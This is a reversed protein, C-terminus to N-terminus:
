WVLGGFEVPDYALFARDLVFGVLVGVDLAVEGKRRGNDLAVASNQGPRFVCTPQPPGFGRPPKTM